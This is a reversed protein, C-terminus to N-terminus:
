RSGIALWLKRASISMFDRRRAQEALEDFTLGLQDLARQASANWEEVTMVIPDEQTSNTSHKEVSEQSMDILTVGLGVWSPMSHPVTCPTLYVNTLSRRDTDAAALNAPTFVSM